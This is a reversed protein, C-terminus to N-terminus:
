GPRSRNWAGALWQDPQWAGSLSGTPGGAPPPGYLDANIVIKEKPLYVIAMNDSHNLGEVHYLEVVRTAQLRNAAIQGRLDLANLEPLRSRVLYERELDKRNYRDTPWM